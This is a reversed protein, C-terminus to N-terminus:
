ILSTAVEPGHEVEWLNGDPAFALGYPTRHGSTWTEAPTMNPGPFVYTRIV